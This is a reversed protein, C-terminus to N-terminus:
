LSTPKQAWIYVIESEASGAEEWETAAAKLVEHYQEESNVLGFGGKRVVQGALGAFYEYVCVQGDKSDKGGFPYGHREVHIHTFGAERLLDPIEAFIRLVLGNSKFLRDQILFLKDTAPGLGFGWHGYEGLQVRGGPKSTRYMEGVAVPWEERKLGAMLLRQHIFDFKDGWEAPLSLVSCLSFSANNPYSAPFRNGEIDIGHITSAPMERAIDM